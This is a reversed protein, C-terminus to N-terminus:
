SLLREKSLNLLAADDLGALAITDVTDSAAAEAGFHPDIPGLSYHEVTDNCLLGRALKRLDADTLDGQLEYRTATAVECAPLGIEVMGRALERAPIDTVGPRFAVEIVQSAPPMTPTAATIQWTAHETVPDALLLTCLQEILAAGPDVALFYLRKVRCGTLATVGLAAANDLLAQHSPEQRHSVEIRITM